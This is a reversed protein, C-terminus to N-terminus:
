YSAINGRKRGTLNKFKEPYYESVNFFKVAMLFEAPKNVAFTRIERFNPYEAGEM